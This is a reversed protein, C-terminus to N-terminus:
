NPTLDFKDNLFKFNPYNDLLEGYDIMEEIPTDEEKQEEVGLTISEPLAQEEIEENRIYMPYAKGEEKNWENLQPITLPQSLTNIYSYHTIDINALYKMDKPLYKLIIRAFDKESGFYDDEPKLTDYFHKSIADNWHLFDAVVEKHNMRLLYLMATDIGWAHIVKYNSNWSRIFINRNYLITEVNVISSAVAAIWQYLLLRAEEASIGQPTKSMIHLYANISTCRKLKEIDLNFWPRNVFRRCIDFYYDADNFEDLYKRIIKEDLFEIMLKGCFLGHYKNWCKEVSESYCPHWNVIWKDKDPLKYYNLNKCLWETDKRSGTFLALGVKRQETASLEVFMKRLKNGAYQVRKSKKNLFWEILTDITEEVNEPLSYEKYCLRDDTYSKWTPNDYIEQIMEEESMFCDSFLIDQYNKNM